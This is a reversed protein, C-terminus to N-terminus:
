EPKRAAVVSIRSRTHYEEFERTMEAVLGMYASESIGYAVRFTPMMRIFLTRCDTAMMAGLRGGWEGIPLELDRLEHMFMGARSLSEGLKNSVAGTSDLGAQTGMQVLMQFLRQTAPGMPAAPPVRAEVLEIWGGPRTVRVLEAVVQGWSVVPIGSILLRQHVFDFRGGQFPIGHLVNARVFSYGPPWPRKSPAVDLGTVLAGPFESCVEYAWQGTGCGVDLIMQAQQLPALFNSGLAERLAFHQIDLRDIEADHRPLFYAIGPNDSEVALAEAVEQATPVVLAQDMFGRDAALRSLAAVVSLRRTTTVPALDRLSLHVAYRLLPDTERHTFLEALAEVVSRGRFGAFDRLDALYAQRTKEPRDRLFDEILEQVNGV